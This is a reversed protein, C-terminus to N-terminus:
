GLLPVGKRALKLSNFALVLGLSTREFLSQDGGLGTRRLEATDLGRIISTNLLQSLLPLRKMGRLIRKSLFDGAKLVLERL